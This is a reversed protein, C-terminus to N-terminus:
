RLMWWLAAAIIGVFFGAAYCIAIIAVTEMSAAATMSPRSM